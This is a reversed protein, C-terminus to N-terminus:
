ARRKRFRYMLAMAASGLLILSAPEPVTGVLGETVTVGGVTAGTAFFGVFEGHDNIGNITTAVGNPDTISMFKGSAIDYIFGHMVGGADVYDGVVEGVDNLGLAQTFTSGPFDLMTFVGGIDLFGDSTTASTMNFGVVDGANNVDTAQASVLGSFSIPTFAGPVWTFPHFNGAADTWYGAAEGSDNVGLLQTVTTTNPNSVDRFTTGNFTFGHNVGAADIYFGVTEGKNNIGVVQTQVAGPTFNQPTFTSPLTLTFGNNAVVVGDGFYGAITAANNIGLLQTFNPDGPNTVTQLADAFVPVAVCAVLALCFLPFARKM